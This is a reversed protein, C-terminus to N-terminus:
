GPEAPKSWCCLGSGACAVRSTLWGWVIAVVATLWVDVVAVVVTLWSLWAVTVTLWGEVIAVILTLWGGLAAVVVTLGWVVAVEVSLWDTKLWLVTLEGTSSVEWDALEIEIAAPSSCATM